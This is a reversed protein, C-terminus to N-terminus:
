GAPALAHIAVGFLVAVLALTPAVLLLPVGQGHILHSLHRRDGIWPAYGLYLRACVVQTFDLFLVATPALALLPDGKSSLLAATAVSAGLGYAGADGLFARGGPWNFPLFALWIAALPIAVELGTVAAMVLGTGAVATAVGHMNDLFNTANICVFTALVLGTATQWPLSDLGIAGHVLLGSAAILGIAKLQWAIGDHHRKKLDDAFGTAVALLVAGALLPRDALVLWLTAALAPALGAMPTPRGHRKRGPRPCDEPLINRGSRYGWLLILLIAATGVGFGSAEVIM